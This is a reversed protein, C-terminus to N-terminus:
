SLLGGARHRVQQVIRSLSRHPIGSAESAEELSHDARLLELATRANPALPALAVQWEDRRAAFALPGPESALLHQAQGGALTGLSLTRRRDRKRARHYRSLQMTMKRAVGRLFRRLTGPDKLRGVSRKRCFVCCWVQQLVDDPDLVPRAYVSLRGRIVRLLEPRLVAVLAAVASEDGGGLRPLLGRLHEVTGDM